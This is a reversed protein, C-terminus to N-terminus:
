RGRLETFRIPGWGDQSRSVELINQGRNLWRRTPPLGREHRELVELRVRDAWPSRVPGFLASGGPEVAGQELVLPDDVLRDRVLQVDLPAQTNNRIEVSYSPSCAPLASAAALVLAAIALPRPETM